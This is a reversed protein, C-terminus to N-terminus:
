KDMDKVRTCGILLHAGSIRDGPSALGDTLVINVVYDSIIIEFSKHNDFFTLLNELILRNKKEFIASAIGRFSIDSRLTIIKSLNTQM